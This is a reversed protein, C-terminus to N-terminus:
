RDWVRTIPNKNEVRKGKGSSVSSKPFFKTRPYFERITIGYLDLLGTSIWESTGESCEVFTVVKYPYQSLPFDQAEISKNPVSGTVVDPLKPLWRWQPWRLINSVHSHSMERIYFRKWTRLPERSHVQRRRFVTFRFKSFVCYSRDRYPCSLLRLNTFTIIHQLGLHRNEKVLFKLLFM